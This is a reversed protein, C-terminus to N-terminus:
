TKVASLKALGSKVQSANHMNCGPLEGFADRQGVPGPGFDEPDCGKSVARETGPGPHMLAEHEPHKLRDVKELKVHVLLCTKFRAQDGKRETQTTVAKPSHTLQGAATPKSTKQQMSAHDIKHHRASSAAESM